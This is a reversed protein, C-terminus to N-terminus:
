RLRAVPAGTGSVVHDPATLAASVPAAAAPTASRACRTSYRWYPPSCGVRRWRRTGRAAALQLVAGRRVHPARRPLEHELLLVAPGALYTRTSRRWDAVDPEMGIHQPVHTVRVLHRPLARFDGASWFGTVPQWSPSRWPPMALWAAGALWRGCTPPTRLRFREWALGRAFAYRFLRRFSDSGQLEGHFRVVVSDLEADAAAYGRRRARSPHHVSPTQRPQRPLVGSQVLDSLRQRVPVPRQAVPQPVHEPAVARPRRRRRRLFRLVHLAPVGGGGGVAVRTAMRGGLWRARYRRLVGCASTTGRRWDNRRNNWSRPGTAALPVLRPAQWDRCHRYGAGHPAAPPLAQATPM